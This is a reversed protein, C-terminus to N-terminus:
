DKSLSEKKREEDVEQPDALYGRKSPDKYYKELKPPPAAKRPLRKTDFKWPKVLVRLGLKTYYACTVQGGQREVTEIAKKSARSVEIDIKSNFIESGTGLLCVGDQLRSVAGTTWLTNMNIPKNVDIRGCDIFYQLRNLNLPVYNKKNVNKFGHKPIRLYFPTQGGEFGIRPLTGRQGQGKHGRGSTKGRGSGPGRGKRHHPKFAEPFDRINNLVVRPLKELAKLNKEVHCFAIGKVAM